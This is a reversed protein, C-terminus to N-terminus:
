VFGPNLFMKMTITRHGKREGWDFGWDVFVVGKM